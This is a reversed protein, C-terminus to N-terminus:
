AEEKDPDEEVPPQPANIALEVGGSAAKAGQKAKKRMMREMKKRLREKVEFQDDASFEKEVNHTFIEPYDCAFMPVIILVVAVAM